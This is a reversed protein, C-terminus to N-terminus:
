DRDNPGLVFGPTVLMDKQRLFFQKLTGLQTLAIDVYVFVYNIGTDRLFHELTKELLILKQDPLSFKGYM